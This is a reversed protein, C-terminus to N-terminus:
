SEDEELCARLGERYTPYRLRIGLDRKIKDNKVRRWGSTYFGQAMPSLDARNLPQLPPYPLSLLDCAYETVATGSAPEDDSVNYIALAEAPQQMSAILTAVIDDVHIRCFVHGGLGSAQLDIRHARGERVRDLASRGGPGYIGPLRFIHVNTLSTLSRWAAEAQARPASRTADNLPSKEDVWGGRTDGYVGTTSLYGLWSGRWSRLSDGYQVLVPDGMDAPPVSSLIHTADFIASEIAADGWCLTGNRGDRTIGTVRWGVARLAVALRAATYGLGFILLHSM